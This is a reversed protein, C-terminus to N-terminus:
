ETKRKGPQGQLPPLLQSLDEPLLAQQVAEELMVVVVDAGFEWMSKRINESHDGLGQQVGQVHTSAKVWPLSAWPHNTAREDRYSHWAHVLDQLTEGLLQHREWGAATSCASHEWAHM